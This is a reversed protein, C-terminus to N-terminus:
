ILIISVSSKYKIVLDHTKFIDLFVSFTPMGHLLTICIDNLKRYYTYPKLPYKLLPENEFKAVDFDACHPAWDRGVSAGVKQIYWEGNFM